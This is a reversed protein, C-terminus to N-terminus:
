LGALGKVINKLFNWSQKRAPGEFIFIWFLLETPPKFYISEHCLIWLESLLAMNM